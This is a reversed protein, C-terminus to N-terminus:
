LSRKWSKLREYLALIGVLSERRQSEAQAALARWSSGRGLTELARGNLGRLRAIYEARHSDFYQSLYFTPGVSCSKEYLFVPVLM